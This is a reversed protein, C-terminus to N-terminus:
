GSAGGLTGFQSAPTAMMSSALCPGCTCDQICQQIICPRIICPRIICQNIICQSVICQNIICTFTPTAAAICPSAPAGAAICPAAQLAKLQEESLTLKALKDELEAVRMELTKAEAKAKGEAEREIAM